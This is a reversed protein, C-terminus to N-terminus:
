LENEYFAEHEQAIRAINELISSWLLEEKDEATWVIDPINAKDM